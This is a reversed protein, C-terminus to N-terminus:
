TDSILSSTGTHLLKRTRIASQHKDASSADGLRAGGRTTIDIPSLYGLLASPVWPGSDQANEHGGNM